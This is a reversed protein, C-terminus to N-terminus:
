AADRRAEDEAAPSDEIVEAHGELAEPLRFGAVSERLQEALQSLERTGRATEGATNSTQTALSAVVEIESNITQTSALQRSTESTIRQVLSELDHAFAEVKELAQGAEEASSAGLVVNNTSREMSIIAENTDAQITKVLGEIQRTADAAREALRQVEDAVVAFGRGAEGAMAAQIAANLALTNTQEAIDNIFEIINGIEQSSEGLRKIRKSTDQIQERLAEMSDISRRVTEGGSKATQLSLESQQALTQAESAMDQVGLNLAEISSAAARVRDTQEAAASNLSDSRELTNTAARAVQQASSQITGVLNRLTEITFNISDAIAGTFDESVTANITLDGDALDSIEDLLRLIAEQQAKESREALVSRRRASVLFLVVFLGLLVVTAAGLYYIAMPPIPRANSYATLEDELAIAASTVATGLQALSAAAAQTEALRPAQRLLGSLLQELKGLTQALDGSASAGTRELEGLLERLTGNMERITVDADRGAGLIRLADARLSELGVQLRSYALLRGTNQSSQRLEAQADRAQEQATAATKRLEFISREALNFMGRADLIQNISDDLPYWSANLTELLPQAPKPVPPLEILEDGNELLFLNDLANAQAGELARFDPILGRAANDGIQGLAQVQNQLNRSLNQWERDEAAAKELYFYSGLTAALALAALVLLVLERRSGVKKNAAAM